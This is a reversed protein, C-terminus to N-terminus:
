LVFLSRVEMLDNTGPAHVLADVAEKWEPKLGNKLAELGKASVQYATVSQYLTTSLKLGNIHDTERLDDIDDRGEQSINM